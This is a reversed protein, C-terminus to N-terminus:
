LVTLAELGTIYQIRYSLTYKKNEDSYSINKGEILVFIQEREESFMQCAEWYRVVDSQYVSQKYDEQILSPKWAQWFRSTEWCIIGKKEYM